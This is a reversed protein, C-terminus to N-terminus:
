KLKLQKVEEIQQKEDAFKHKFLETFLKNDFEGKEPLCQGFYRSKKIANNAGEGLHFLTSGAADGLFILAVKGNQFLYIPKETSSVFTDFVSMSTKNKLERSKPNRSLKPDKYSDQLQSISIELRILLQSKAWEAINKESVGPLLEGAMHVRYGGHKKRTISYGFLPHKTLNLNFKKNLYTLRGSRIIQKAEKQEDLTLEDRLNGQMICSFSKMKYDSILEKPRAQLDILKTTIRNTGTADVLHQFLIIDTQENRMNKLELYQNEMDIRMIKFHEGRMYSFVSGKFVKHAIKCAIFLMEQLYKISIKKDDMHDNYISNFQRILEQSIISKNKLSNINGHLDKFYNKSEQNLIVTQDRSFFEYREILLVNKRKQLAELAAVLGAIGMGLIIIPKM